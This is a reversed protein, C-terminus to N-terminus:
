FEKLNKIVNITKDIMEIEKSIQSLKQESINKKSVFIKEYELLDTRLITKQNELTELKDIILNVQHISKLFDINENSSNETEVKQNKKNINKKSNIPKAEQDYKKWDGNRKLINIEYNEM